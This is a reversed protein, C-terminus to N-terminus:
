SLRRYLLVVLTALAAIVVITVIVGTAIRIIKLRKLEKEERKKALGTPDKRKEIEFLIAEANLSTTTNVRPSEVEIVKKKKDMKSIPAQEIDHMRAIQRRYSAYKSVRSVNKKSM